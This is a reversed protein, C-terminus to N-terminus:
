DSVTSCQQMSGLDKRSRMNEKLHPIPAAYLAPLPLAPHSVWIPSIGSLQEPVVSTGMSLRQSQISISPSLEARKPLFSRTMQTFNFIHSITQLASVQPPNIKMHFPLFAPFFLLLCSISVSIPVFYHSAKFSLSGQKALSIYKSYIM